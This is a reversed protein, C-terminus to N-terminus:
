QSVEARQAATNAAEPPRAAATPNGPHLPCGIGGREKCGLQYIEGRAHLIPDGSAEIGPPLRMPNFSLKDVDVGREHAMQEIFLTGMSVTQRTVPWTMSPDDLADGPDGIAMKLTFRAPSKALRERMEPTLFDHAKSALQDAPVPFVGDIPQWSFRVPRRVGDPGDVM